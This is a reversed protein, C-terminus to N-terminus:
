APGLLKEVDHEPMRRATLGLAHFIQAAEHLAFVAVRWAVQRCTVRLIVGDDFRAHGVMVLQLAKRGNLLRGEDGVTIVIQHARRPQRVQHASKNRIGLDLDIWVGSVAEQPLVVLLKTGVDVCEQRSSGARAKARDAARLGIAPPVTLFQCSKARIRVLALFPVLIFSWALISVLANLPTRM